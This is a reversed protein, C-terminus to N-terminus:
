DSGACRRRPRRAPQPLLRGPVRGVVAALAASRPGRRGDEGASSRPGSSCCTACWRRRLAPRRGATAARAFACRRAREATAQAETDLDYVVEMHDSVFGIPVVVVAASARREALEELHDNVDPELWPM